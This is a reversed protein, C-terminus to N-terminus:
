LTRLTSATTMKTHKSHDHGVRICATQEWYLNQIVLLDKGDLELQKLPDFLNEHKVKDFAKTYEIYCIHFDTKM